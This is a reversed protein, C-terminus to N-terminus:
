RETSEHDKPGPSEKERHSGRNVDLTSEAEEDKPAHQLLHLWLTGGAKVRGAISIEPIDDSVHCWQATPKKFLALIDSLEVHWQAPSVQEGDHDGGVLETLAPYFWMQWGDETHLVRYATGAMSSLEYCDAVHSVMSQIWAPLKGFDVKKIM